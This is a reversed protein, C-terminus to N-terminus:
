KNEARPMARRSIATLSSWSLRAFAKSISDRPTLPRSVPPPWWSSPSRRIPRTVARSRPGCSRWTNRAPTGTSNSRGVVCVPRRIPSCCFVFMRMPCVVTTIDRGEAIMGSGEERAEMMRRRQETAMWARVDLNTSIHKIALAIRPERIELTIESDGIWVHPDSPDSVLRLPMRAAAAAVAATDELDIGEDLCYWTLARYMAGTDLYGIGLRTALAKSVTSKGSGAPGDIAITIGVRTIADRRQTDNM